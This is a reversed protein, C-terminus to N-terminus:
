SNMLREHERSRSGQCTIFFAVGERVLKDVSFAHHSEPPYPHRNLHADLETLLQVADASDPRAEVVTIPM